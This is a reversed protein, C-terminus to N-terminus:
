NHYEKRLIKMTRHVRVKVASLSCGLIDAVEAYKFGQFLTLQIIEQQDSTLRTLARKLKSKKDDADMTTDEIQPLMFGLKEDGPLTLRKKRHYDNQENWALKFLWPKFPFDTNFKSRYKIVREFVNQVLDKSLADNKSCRFFFTYLEKHYRHFLVSISSIDGDKARLMLAEDTIM